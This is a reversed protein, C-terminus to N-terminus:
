ESCTLTSPPPTIKGPRDKAIIKSLWLEVRYPVGDAFPGYAFVPSHLEGQQNKEVPKCLPYTLHFGHIPTIRAAMTCFFVGDEPTARVLMPARQRRRRLRGSTANIAQRAELDPGDARGLQELVGADPSTRSRPSPPM